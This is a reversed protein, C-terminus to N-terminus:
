RGGFQMNVGLCIKLPNKNSKALLTNVMQLSIAECSNREKLFSLIARSHHCCIMM